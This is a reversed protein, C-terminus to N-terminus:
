QSYILPCWWCGSAFFSVKRVGVKAIKIGCARLRVTRKGRAIKRHWVATFLRHIIVLCVNHFANPPPPLSVMNFICLPPTTAAVTTSTTPAARTHAHAHTHLHLFSMRVKRKKKKKEKTDKEGKLGQAKAYISETKEELKQLELLSEAKRVLLETISCGANMWAFRVGSLYQYSSCHILQLSSAFLCIHSWSM